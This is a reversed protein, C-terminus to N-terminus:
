AEPQSPGCIPPGVFGSPRIPDARSPTGPSLTSAAAPITEPKPPASFSVGLKLRSKLSQLSCIPQSFTDLNLEIALPDGKLTLLVVEQTLQLLCKSIFCLGLLLFILVNRPQLLLDLDELEHLVLIPIVIPCLAFWRYISEPAILRM